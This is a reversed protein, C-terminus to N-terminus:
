IKQKKNYFKIASQYDINKLFERSPSCLYYNSGLKQLKQDVSDITQKNSLALQPWIREFNDYKDTKPCADVCLCCINEKKLISCDTKPDINGSVYWFLNYLNDINFDKDVFIAIKMSKIELCLNEAMDKISNEKTKEIQFIGVPIEKEFLSLNADKLETFKGLLYEKNVINKYLNRDVLETSLKKTLDICIKGGYCFERSSHDLVDSVGMDISTDRSADFHQLASSFFNQYNRIDEKLDTVILIKNFMMQGAGWLSHKVKMVDGKYLNKIKAIVINHQVGVSPMHFDEMEPVFAMKIPFYFLKETCEGIWSDEMPPIGVLTAPYIANKKHTIATIHMKPYFDAESYYGTHDGFPGELVKDEKPDVYGEIVFDVDEPILIEKQTLCPILKVPKNRLYGALLYEDIGEPLPATACYAYVPDGGITIAVPMKKGLEKYKQYHSNGTKHKHWHLGVTQSDFVQNRYMGVNRAGSIADITHVMPLTIFNGGDFPWCKLIPLKTIDIQNEIVERCPAQNNGKKTFCNFVQKINKLLGLKEKLNEKKKLFTEFLSKLEQAKQDLNNAYIALAMRKQSGYLNTIVPFEKGTNLFLLAKGGGEQKSERDTIEAIELEPSVFDEFIKIEGEKKLLLIFDDLTRTQM